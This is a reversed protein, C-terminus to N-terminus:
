PLQGATDPSVQDAEIEAWSPAHWIRCSADGSGTYITTGDPSWALSEIVSSHGRLMALQRGGAVDWLRLTGDYSGTALMTGDPSFAVGHIEDTHGRLPPLEHPKTSDSVDWWRLETDGSTAALFEGKPSFCICRIDTVKIPFRLWYAAQRSTGSESGDM